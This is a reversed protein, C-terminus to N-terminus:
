TTLLREIESIPHNTYDKDIEAIVAEMLPKSMAKRLTGLIAPPAVIVVKRFRDKEHLKHLREAITEAFRHEELEHWDTTQFASRPTTGSVQYRGPEDTGQEHTPPNEQEMLREVQFNPYVEDGENRMLLAKRGDGVVIWCDHPIKMSM